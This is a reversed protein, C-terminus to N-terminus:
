VMVIDNPDISSVNQLVIVNSGISIVLDNGLTSIVASEDGFSASDLEIRDIGSQFDTVYDTGENASFLFHDAGAGGTLADDGTGGELTDDGEGGSLTDGGGGGALYDNGDFGFMFNGLDNGTMEDGFLTGVLHEISTLTDTESDTYAFGNGDNDLTIGVGESLDRFDALDEGEGGNLTDDGAGGLLTDDGELGFIADDGAGGYLYNGHADGGLTDAFSTGFLAEFGSISTGTVTETGLDLSANVGFGLGEFSAVDFGDGGVLTDAGGGSVLTDDGLGGVLSNAGAGGMIFDNHDSGIVNEISILGDSGEGEASGNQLNVIVGVTSQAYTVTDIGDGGDLTDNGLGGALLDSGGFGYVFNDGDDGQITDDFQSAVIHEVNILTDTGEGVASNTALDITLPGAADRYDVLDSGEGGDLVDDGAGGLLTDSGAGGTLNDDGALGVLYNDGGDGTLADGFATGVVGEIGILTSGSIGESGTGNGIDLSVTVGGSLTRFDVMDYGAGGVLTDQGGFGVLVDDGEGGELSNNGTTGVIYDGFASGIANEIGSLADLIGTGALSGALNSALSIVVAEDSATYSVTDSGDGGVLTDGSLDGLLLDDGAGGFLYNAGSDGHLTDNGATAIVTDINLLTDTGDGTASFTALDVSIPGAATAYNAVDNGAAGGDLVDDGAGGILTDDGMGGQLFDDGVRGDLWAGIAANATLNDGGSGGVVGEIGSVIGGDSVLGTNLDVSISSTRDAFDAIDYGDGGILTDAGGTGSALTDSGAGGELRNAGSDGGLFDDGSTGIANEVNILTDIDSGHQAYGLDLAVVVPGALGSYDATDSGSGGDLRNAADDGTLNDGFASGTANEIGVLSHGLSDVVGLTVSVGAGANEYTVTDTPAVTAVVRESDLLTDSDSGHVVTGLVADYTIPGALGSYDATESGSGGDLPNSGAAGILTDSGGGGTLNDDGAGGDLRNAADDGTLNDDFASGVVNEIGSLEDGLSDIGNALDVSVGVGLDSYDVTDIGDDAGVTGGFFQDLGGSGAILTDDGGFGQFTDADPTGLLTNNASTGNIFPM